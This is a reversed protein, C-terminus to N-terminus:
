ENKIVEAPNLRAIKLILVSILARCTDAVISVFVLKLYHLIM